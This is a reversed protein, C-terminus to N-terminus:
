QWLSALISAYVTSCYRAPEVNVTTAVSRRAGFSL